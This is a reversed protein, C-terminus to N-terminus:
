LVGKMGAVVALREVVVAAGLHLFSFRSSALAYELLKLSLSHSIM